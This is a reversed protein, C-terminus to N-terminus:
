SLAKLVKDVAAVGEDIEAPTIVLPPSFRLGRGGAITLLVGAERLAALAQTAVAAERLVLAQLLGQGRACEVRSCHREALEALGRSLQAGREAAADM